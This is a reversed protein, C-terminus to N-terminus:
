ASFVFIWWGVEDWLLIAWQLPLLKYDEGRPNMIKNFEQSDKSDHKLIIQYDRSRNRVYIVSADQNTPQQFGTVELSDASPEFAVANSLAEVDNENRDLRIVTTSGIATFDNYQPM